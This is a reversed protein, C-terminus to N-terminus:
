RSLPVRRVGMAVAVHAGAVALGLSPDWGRWGAGPLYVEAWAHMYREQQNQAGARYGSVFRAALGLTRCIVIFLVALDRCAGRVRALTEAAAMPRGELRM